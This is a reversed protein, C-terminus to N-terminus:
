VFSFVLALLILAVVSCGFINAYLYANPLDMPCSLSLPLAKERGIELSVIAWSKHLASCLVYMSPMSEAFDITIFHFWWCCRWSLLLLQVLYYHYYCFCCFLHTQKRAIYLFQIIMSSWHRYINNHQTSSIMGVQVFIMRALTLIVVHLQTQWVSHFAALNNLM